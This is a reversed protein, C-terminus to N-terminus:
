ASHSSAIATSKLIIQSSEENLGAASGAPACARAASLKATGEKPGVGRSTNACRAWPWGRRWELQRGSRKRKSEENCDGVQFRRMKKRANLIRLLAALNAANRATLGRKWM